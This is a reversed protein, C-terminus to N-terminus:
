MSRELIIVYESPIAAPNDIFIQVLRWGQAAHEEIVSQYSAPDFKGAKGVKVPSRIFIYEYM